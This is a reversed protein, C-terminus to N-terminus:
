DVETVANEQIPVTFTDHRLDKQVNAHFAKRESLRGAGCNTPHEM